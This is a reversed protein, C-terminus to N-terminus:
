LRGRHKSLDSTAGVHGTGEGSHMKLLPMAFGVATEKHLLLACVLFQCKSVKKLKVSNDCECNQKCGINIM